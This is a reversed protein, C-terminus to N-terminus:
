GVDENANGVLNMPTGPANGFWKNFRQYTGYIQLPGAIAQLGGSLLTQKAQNEATMQAFQGQFRDQIGQVKYGWAQRAANNRITLEDIGGALNTGIRTLAASGSGVDVGSAGQVALEEGVKGKTELNKRSAAIDGAQLTQTGALDAMTANVDAISKQYRGTAKLAESQSYATGISGAASLGMMAVLPAGGAASM